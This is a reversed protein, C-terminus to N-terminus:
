RHGKMKENLSLNENKRHPPLAMTNCILKSSLKARIISDEKFKATLTAFGADQSAAIDFIKFGKICNEVAGTRADLVFKLSELNEM